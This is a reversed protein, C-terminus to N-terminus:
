YIESYHFSRGIVQRAGLQVKVYVPPENPELEILMVYGKAGRPLTLDITEVACGAELESAILEWASADTFHTDFDGRPNRM